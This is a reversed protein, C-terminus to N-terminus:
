SNVAAASPGSIAPQRPAFAFSRSALFTLATVPPVAVAYAALQPVGLGRVAAWVLATSLVLATAQIALYVGRAKWSDSADFTWRVNLIYGNVAGAAFALAAAVVYPVGVALYAAYSLYSVVTNGAGVAVFRGLQRAMTRGDTETAGIPHM